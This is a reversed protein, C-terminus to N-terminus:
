AKHNRRIRFLRQQDAEIPQSNRRRNVSHKVPFDDSM